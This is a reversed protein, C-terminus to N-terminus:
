NLNICIEDIIASDVVKNAKAELEIVLSVIKAIKRYDEVAIYYTYCLRINFIAVDLLEPKDKINRGLFLLSQLSLAMYEEITQQSEEQELNKKGIEIAEEFEARDFELIRM